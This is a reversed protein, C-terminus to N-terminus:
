ALWGGVAREFAAVDLGKFVRHLTAVCPSRGPRLGLKELLGPNDELRERGWQAIAYLSRAGCLM